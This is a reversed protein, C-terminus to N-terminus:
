CMAVCQLVSLYAAVCQLSELIHQIIVQQLLAQQDRMAKNPDLQAARM